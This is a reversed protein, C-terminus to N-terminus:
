TGGDCPVAPSASTSSLAGRKTQQCQPAANITTSVNSRPGLIRAGGEDHTTGHVLLSCAQRVRAKVPRRPRERGTAASGRTAVGPRPRLCPWRQRLLCRSGLEVAVVLQVRADGHVVGGGLDGYRRLAWRVRRPGHRPKRGQPKDLMRGRTTAGRQWPATCPRIDSLGLCICASAFSQEAAGQNGQGRLGRHLRLRARHAGRSARRAGPGVGEEASRDRPRRAHRGDARMRMMVGALTAGIKADTRLVASM